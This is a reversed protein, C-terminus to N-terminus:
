PKQMKPQTCGQFTTKCTLPTTIQHNLNTKGTIKLSNIYDFYNNSVLVLEQVNSICKIKDKTPFM